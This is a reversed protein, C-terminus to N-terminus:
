RPAASRGGDEGLPLALQLVLAAHDTDTVRVTRLTLPTLGPGLLAHDIAILRTPLVRTPWTLVPGRGLAQAADTLGAAALRRMTHHCDVSNFDGIVLLNQAVRPALAAHLKEADANWAQVSGMPSIPHVGALLLDGSPHKVRVLKSEFRTPIEEIPELPFRSHITTGKSNPAGSGIRHPFRQEFGLPALRGLLIPTVEILVVVDADSTLALVAEPDARGYEVNLSVVTIPEGTASAPTRDPLRLYRGFWSLGCGLGALAVAAAVPRRPRALALAAAAAWGTMGYHAFSSAQALFRSGTQLRPIRSLALAALGAGATGAYLLDRRPRTEHHSMVGM